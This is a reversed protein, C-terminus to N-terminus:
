ATSTVVTSTKMCTRLREGHKKWNALDACILLDPCRKAYDEVEDKVRQLKCWKRLRDKLHWIAKAASFVADEIREDPLSVEKSGIRFAYAFHRLISSMM